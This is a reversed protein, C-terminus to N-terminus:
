ASPGDKDTSDDLEKPTQFGSATVSMDNKIIENNIEKNEQHPESQIEDITIATDITNKSSPIEFRVSSDKSKLGLKPETAKFMGRLEAVSRAKAKALESVEKAREEREKEGVTINIEPAKAKPTNQKSMEEFMERAIKRVEEIAVNRTKKELDSMVMQKIVGRKYHLAVTAEAAIRKLRENTNKYVKTHQLIGTIEPKVVDANKFLKNFQEIIQEPIPPSQEILRDLEIRFMKLFNLSDMREDPHLNMEICLLRNFKGWSIGSVRHAESHKAYAYMNMFTQTIGTLLSAGGLGLQAWKALEKDDGTISNLAFNASATLGSLIIIPINFYRDRTQFLLSTKEHMWRYCAAKDAWDAMLDELESTWGNLFRKKPTEAGSKDEGTTNTPTKSESENM